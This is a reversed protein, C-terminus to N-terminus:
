LASASDDPPGMWAHLRLSAADREVALAARHRETPSLLVFHWRAPDDRLRALDFGISLRGEDIGELTFADLPLSLGEGHAKLFAEKLTWYDFFRDRRREEPLSRLAIIEAPSFYREVDELVDRTADEVDVGIEGGTRVALAVLGHAHSLNFRLPPAATGPALEPRGWPNRVFRWARPSLSGFRSLALRLGAHAVLFLTRDREFRFRQMRATEEEDLLSAWEERLAAREDVIEPRVFWVHVEGAAPASIM